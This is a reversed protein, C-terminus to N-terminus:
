HDRPNGHNLSFLGDKREAIKQRDLLFEITAAADMAFSSCSSFKATDGFKELILDRLQPLTFIRNEQALMDLVAHVHYDDHTTKTEM